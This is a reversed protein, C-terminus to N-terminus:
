WWREERRKTTKVVVAVGKKKKANPMMQPWQIRARNPYKKSSVYKSFFLTSDIKLRARIKSFGNFYFSVETRLKNAVCLFLIMNRVVTERRRRRFAPALANMLPPPNPNPNPLALLFMENADMEPLSVLVGSEDKKAGLKLHKENEAVDPPARHGGRNWRGIRESLPLFFM